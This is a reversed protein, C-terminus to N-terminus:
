REFRERHRCTDGWIREGQTCLMLCAIVEKKLAVWAGSHVLPPFRDMHDNACNLLMHHHYSIRCVRRSSGLVYHHILKMYWLWNNNNGGKVLCICTPYTIGRSWSCYVDDIYWQVQRDLLHCGCSNSSSLAPLIHHVAPLALIGMPHCTIFVMTPSCRASRTFSGDLAEIKSLLLM